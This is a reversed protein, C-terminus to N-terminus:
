RLADWEKFPLGDKLKVYTVFITAAANSSTVVKLDADKWGGVKGQFHLNTNVVLTIDFDAIKVTNTADDLEIIVSQANSKASSVVIDFIVLFGGPDAEAIITTTASSVDVSKFQTADFLESTTVLTEGFGFENETRLPKGGASVMNVRLAM